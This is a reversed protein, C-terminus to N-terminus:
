RVYTQSRAAQYTPILNTLLKRLINAIFLLHLRIKDSQVKKCQIKKIQVCGLSGKDLPAPGFPRLPSGRRLPFAGRAPSSDAFCVSLNDCIRSLRETEAAGLWRGQSPLSQVAGEGCRPLSKEKRGFFKYLKLACNEGKQPCNEHRNQQFATVIFSYSRDGGPAAPLTHREGKRQPSFSEDPAALPKARQLLM